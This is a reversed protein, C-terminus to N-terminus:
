RQPFFDAHTFDRLGEVVAATLSQAGYKRQGGAWRSGPCQESVAEGTRLVQPSGVVDAFSEGLGTDARQTEVEGVSVEGGVDVIKQCRCAVQFRGTLPRIQEDTVGQPAATSIAAPRMALQWATAVM